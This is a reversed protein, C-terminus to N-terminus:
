LTVVGRVTLVVGVAAICGASVVPALRMVRTSFRGEALTRARVALAGFAALSIALGVSFAAILVLGLATRGLSVASLLLVLATPSPLIGGAFALAMLGKRSLPRGSHVHQHEHEHDAASLAHIRSILLATGLGLAVLGSALGLWPYVREPPLLREATLVLLGLALVSATHMVSVALGVLAAQRVTGESGVLYAGILTKGHGPGLAHVAGVGVAVVLMLAILGVSLDPRAALGALLGQESPPASGPVPAASLAPGGTRFAISASRVDSPVEDAPYSRLGDSRSETPVDSRLLTVGDGAAVVEHWGVRDEYNTDGFSLEHDSGALVPASAVCTLRLTPLGAEGDSIAMSSARILLPADRGDLTLSLRASLAPCREALFRNSEEESVHGTGDRDIRQLAQLTPIEAMDVAYVVIVEDPRLVLSAATNITFNGIPHALAAAPALLVSAGVASAILLRLRKSLVSRVENPRPSAVDDGSTQRADMSRAIARRLM